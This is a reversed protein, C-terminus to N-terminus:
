HMQQGPQALLVAYGHVSLMDDQVPVDVCVGRVFAALADVQQIDDALCVGVALRAFRRPAVGRWGALDDPKQAQRVRHAAVTADNM